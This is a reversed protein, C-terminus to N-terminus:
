TSFTDFLTRDLLKYCLLISCYLSQGFAWRVGGLKSRGHKRHWSMVVVRGRCLRRGALQLIQPGKVGALGAMSWRSCLPALMTMSGRDLPLTRGSAILLMMIEPMGSVGGTMSRAEAEM